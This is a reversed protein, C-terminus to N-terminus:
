AAEPARQVEEVIAKSYINISARLNSVRVIFTRGDWILEDDVRIDTNKPGVWSHTARAQNLGAIQLDKYSVPWFRGKLTQVTSFNDEFGGRNNSVPTNRQIQTSHILLHSISRM